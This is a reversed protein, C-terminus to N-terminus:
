RTTPTPSHDTGAPTSRFTSHQNAYDLRDQIKRTYDNSHMKKDPGRFRSILPADPGGRQLAKNANGQGANYAFMTFRMRHAEDMQAWEKPNAKQIAQAKKLMILTGARINADPDRWNSHELNYAKSKTNDWGILKAVDDDLKGTKKDPTIQMIGLGTDFSKSNKPDNEGGTEVMATAMISEPTMHIGLKAFQPAMGMASAQMEKQFPAMRGMEVDLGGGTHHKKRHRGKSQPVLGQAAPRTEPGHPEPSLTRSRDTVAAAAAGVAGATLPPRHQTEPPERPHEPQSEEWSGSAGGGGFSGGGPHFDANLSPPTEQRDPSWQSSGHPQPEDAWHGLVAAAAHQSSPSPAGSEHPGSGEDNAGMVEASGPLMSELQPAPNQWVNSLPRSKGHESEMM